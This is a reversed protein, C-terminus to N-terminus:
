IVYIAIVKIIKNDKKYKHKNKKNNILSSPKKNLKPTRKRKSLYDLDM